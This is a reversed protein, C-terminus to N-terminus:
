AAGQGRRALAGGGGGGELAGEDELGGVRGGQVQREGAQVVGQPLAAAGVGVPVGGAASPAPIPFALTFTTGRGPASEVDIQGGHDVVIQQVLALGLGTGQAKTSFFPDFIKGLDGRDIGAGSDAIRVVVRGALRDEVVSIALKKTAAGTLAERANRVLNILAQRLQAEDAPLEPLDPAIDMTLAIGEQALEGRALAVVSTILGGLDERELKPRPLRTFRLYTETIETLRDVEGIISAVMRRAEDADAGLEDGLLEANLGISSLPNRVEHAIQAAMRGVTALRESRILKQEREQIADAMADFERALDGIEDHSTVGTRQAYEGGALQRARRRLVGLPRLTQLTFLFVALAVALGAAGLMIALSLATEEDDSLRQAIQGNAGRLPQRMRNLGHVLTVFHSQFESRARPDVSAAAAGLEGTLADLQRGLAAIQRRRLDFDGRRSSRPEKELYRDIAGVADDLQKRATRLALPLNPDLRDGARGLAPAFDNLSKWAADVAGQLELYAENAVVGQRSRHVSLLTFTAYGAFALLLVGFALGIKGFVGLRM